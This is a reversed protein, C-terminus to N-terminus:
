HYGGPLIQKMLLRPFTACFLISTTEMEEQMLTPEKQHILLRRELDAGDEVNMMYFRDFYHVVGELHQILM